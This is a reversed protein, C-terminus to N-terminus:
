PDTFVTFKILRTPDDLRGPKAGVYVSNKDLQGLAAIFEDNYVINEDFGTNNCIVKVQSTKNVLEFENNLIVSPVPGKYKNLWTTPDEFLPSHYGFYYSSRSSLPQLSVRYYIEAEEMQVPEQKMNEFFQIRKDIDALAANHKQILEARSQRLKRLELSAM